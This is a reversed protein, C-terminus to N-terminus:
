GLTTPMQHTRFKVYTPVHCTLCLQHVYVHGNKKITTPGISRGYMCEYCVRWMRSVIVSNASIHVIFRYLWTSVLQFWYSTLVLELDLCLQPCSSLQACVLVYSSCWACWIVCSNLCSSLRYARSGISIPKSGISIALLPGYETMKASYQGIIM